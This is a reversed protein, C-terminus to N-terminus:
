KKQLCVRKECGSDGHRHGSKPGDQGAITGIGVDLTQCEARKTSRGLSPWAPQNEAGSTAVQVFEQLLFTKSFRSSQPYVSGAVVQSM